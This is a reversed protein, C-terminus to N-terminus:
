YILMGYIGIVRKKKVLISDLPCPHGSEEICFTCIRVLLALFPVKKKIFFPWLEQLRPIIHIM